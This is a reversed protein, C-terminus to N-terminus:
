RSSSNSWLCLWAAARRLRWADREGAPGRTCTGSQDLDDGPSSRSSSGKADDRRAAYEIQVPSLVKIITAVTAPVHGAGRRHAPDILHDQDDACSFPTCRYSHSRSYRWHCQVTIVTTARGSTPRTGSTYRRSMYARGQHIRDFRSHPTATDGPFRGSMASTCAGPWCPGHRADGCALTM